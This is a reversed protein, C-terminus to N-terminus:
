PKTAGAPKDGHKKEATAKEGTAKEASAKDAGRTSISVSAGPRLQGQGETVVDVGADLPKDGKSAVIALDGTLQVVEIPRLGATNDAEVVYVFSGQPGRQVAAAPVVLADKRTDVHIRAKVFQNPWLAHEANPVMAKVRMTSTAANIQNDIAAITGVALRQNGDRGYTEVPVEGRKMAATIRPLDDQPLTVFVAIPTLQTIVVLGTTDSARILNGQDVLRIGVVGDIPSRIRSYDLNLKASEIQAQDIKVAGEAQGVLAKQDDVTQQAVLNEKRLQTNRDFNLAASALTAKDRALAGEAQHLQVDWQRPDIQALLEGRKVTQGEKFFVKDLRGDVQSRVTVQQWAAVSGLGELWIPVDKREVKATMVPVVRPADGKKGPAGDPKKGDPKGDPKKGDAGKSPEAGKSDRCATSALALSVALGFSISLTRLM